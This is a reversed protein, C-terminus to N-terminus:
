VTAHDEDGDQVFLEEVRVGIRGGVDVLSGTGLCRGSLVIRVPASSPAALTFVHGATLGSLERLSLTLGGLEFRVPLPVDDLRLVAGSSTEMGSDPPSGDEVASEGSHTTVGATQSQFDDEDMIVKGGELTLKTQEWRAPLAAAGIRLLVSLGIQETKKPKALIIDGVVLGAFEERSLQPGPLVVVAAIPIAGYRRAPSSPEAVARFVEALFALGEPAASLAAFVVLGDDRELRLPVAEDTYWSTEPELSCSSLTVPQGIRATFNRLAEELRAELAAARLEEPLAAFDRAGLACGEWLSLLQNSLYIAAPRGAVEMTLGVEWRAARCAACASLRWERGGLRFVAAAGDAFFRNSAAVAEPALLPMALPTPPIGSPEGAGAPFRAEHESSLDKM